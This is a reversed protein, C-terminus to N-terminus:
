KAAALEERLAALLATTEVPKYFFRHIGHKEATEADVKDSYGSAMIVPLHPRLALLERVLEVGTMGPMTQDTIVADFEDPFTRFAELAARPNAYVTARYGNADLVEGLLKGLSVEDDVVLIHKGGAAPPATTTVPRPAEALPGHAAHFFLRFTTGAGARTEVLVHADHERLIGMVMALGMGSGRGVEKTTFFPDFIKPLVEPAIGSGDDKVYLEVFEGRIPQHCIDCTEGGLTTTRLGVEIHGQGDTADRANIVLNTLVQHLQVPDIHIAPVETAIQERLELSSPLTSALMKIVEKVLPRPDLVQAEGGGGRAFALMKRILDRAREGAKRVEHLYSIAKEPLQPSFRDLTLGTYGLIAGLINNFDHAIGGTLQGVAELKQAHQLQRQLQAREEEAARQETIDFHTGIVRLPQHDPTWEIVKGRDLVWLWSGDKARMRHENVYIPTEGRFHRQLDVHCRARDEPHLRSEWEDLSDGIEHEAYGLMTKWRPSFYVKNSAANWDWVGLNSGELAFQWREESDHLARERSDLGASLANFAQALRALEDSGRVPVLDAGREGAEMRRVGQMLRDLGRMLGGSLWWLAAGGLSASVVLLLIGELLVERRFEAMYDLGIAVRAWGVLRGQAIIPAAADVLGSEARVLKARVPPTLMSLSAPDSLYLGSRTADNHAQIQGDTTALMAYRVDPFDKMALVIEQLGALDHTLMWARSSVALNEALALARSQVRSELFREFQTYQLASALLLTAVFLGVGGALLRRRLSHSWFARLKQIM